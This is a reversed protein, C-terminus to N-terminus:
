AAQGVESELRERLLENLAVRPKIGHAKAYRNLADRIEPRLDDEKDIIEIARERKKLRRVYGREELACIIRHAGSRSVLGLATAMEQMSPAVGKAGIYNELFRLLRLQQNTLTMM